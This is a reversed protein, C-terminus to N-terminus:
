TGRRAASPAPALVSRGRPSLEYGVELSRTLGLAKLKRVDVKFADRERGLSRALDGARVGPHDAIVRLTAATWAGHSSSRDLRELRRLVEAREAESLQARAALEDRPDPGPVLHFRIRYIPLDDTGRLDAVLAAADSYGACTADADSIDRADVIDVADAEIIGAPTRYKGGAVAQRRKWRRFTETISGDEIGAWARQEFLVRVLTHRHNRRRAM